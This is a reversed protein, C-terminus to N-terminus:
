SNAHIQACRRCIGSDSLERQEGCDACREEGTAKALVAEAQEAIRDLSDLARDFDPGNDRNGIVCVAMEYLDGLAALLEPASAILRANAQAESIPRGWETCVHEWLVEALMMKRDDCGILTKHDGHVSWPGPTHATTM